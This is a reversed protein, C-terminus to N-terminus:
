HSSGRPGLHGSQPALVYLNALVTNGLQQGVHLQHLPLLLAHVGLQQGHLLLDQSLRPLLACRRQSAPTVTPPGVQPSSLAPETMVLSVGPFPNWFSSRASHHPPSTLPRRCLSMPSTNSALGSGLGPRAPGPRATEPWPWTQVQVPERGM